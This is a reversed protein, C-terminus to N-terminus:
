ARYHGLILYCVFGLIPTILLIAAWFLTKRPDHWELIVILVVLLADIAYITWNIDEIFVDILM